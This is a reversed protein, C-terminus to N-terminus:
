HYTNNTLIKFLIYKYQINLKHMEIYIYTIKKIYWVYVICKYEMKYKIKHIMFIYKKLFHHM